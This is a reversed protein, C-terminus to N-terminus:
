LTGWVVEDGVITALIEIDKIKVPDIDLPNEALLVMDALKGPELSGKIREEHNQYAAYTTVSKVAELVPVRQSAGIVNGGTSIRNTASWISLLPNIPTVFDDNHNTFPISRQLASRCPDIHHARAPGLFLSEHRDGWYYTHVAFFAPIIGLRKIRDLQDERVTQCHIIIHRADNRPYVKQAAEFANLCDEIAMDGNAHIAIQWGKKHMAIVNEQLELEGNTRYGHYNFALDPRNDPITYYPQSLCGTLAQISGDQVIKLAGLSVMNNGSLDSGSTTTQYSTLEETIGPLVHVRNKLHGSKATGLFIDLFQPFAYGDQATTVGQGLYRQSGHAVAEEVREPTLDPLFDMVLGIASMEEFIGLPEGTAPDTQIHGGKPQPTDRTVGGLEIARSNVAVAHGSIHRIAIPHDTSVKDLDYRTPHRQEAIITDDYGFGSIWKGPATTQAEEKLKALMDDICNVDGIPPSNLDVFFRNFYCSAFFHGHPDIFGPLVTKGDLDIVKTESNALPKLEENSGAALIRDGSTALAQCRRNSSDMMVIDGNIYLTKAHESM